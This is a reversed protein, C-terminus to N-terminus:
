VPDLADFRLGSSGEGRGTRRRRATWLACRGAQWRAYRHIRHVLTGERPLEEEFLWLRGDADNTSLVRGRPDIARPV